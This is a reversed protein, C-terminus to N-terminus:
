KLVELTYNPAYGVGFPTLIKCEKWDGKKREQFIDLLICVSDIPLFFSKGDWHRVNRSSCDIWVGKDLRSKPQVLDGPKM